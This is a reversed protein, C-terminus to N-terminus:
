LERGLAADVSYRGGGRMAFGAAVVGWLLAFEYGGRTAFFGNPWHVQFIAVLMLIGVAVASARTLFGIALLLGGFLETGGALLALPLAPELGMKAFGQATAELGRGGFAGFLKQAGHPMLMLGAAIRILPVGFPRLASELGALAPIIPRIEPADQRAM